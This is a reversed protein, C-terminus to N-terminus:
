WAGGQGHGPPVPQPPATPPVFSITCFLMMVDYAASKCANRKAPDNPYSQACGSGRADSAAICLTLNCGFFKPCEKWTALCGDHDKCADDLADIPGGNQGRLSWGCYNGYGWGFLLGTPDRHVLSNSGLFEFLNLKQEDIALTLKENVSTNLELLRGGHSGNTQDDSPLPDRSVFRGGVSDYMRARFHYLALTEDYERGTYTYRNGIATTTRTTGSADTITPIGYATYGYREVVAGSGDTIATISYQQNRHSSRKLNKKSRCRSLPSQCRAHSTLRLSSFQPISATCTM